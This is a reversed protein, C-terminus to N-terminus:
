PLTLREPAANIGREALLREAEEGTPRWAVRVTTTMREAHGAWFEPAATLEVGEYDGAEIRTALQRLHAAMEIDGQHPEAM